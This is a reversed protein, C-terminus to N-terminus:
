FWKSKLNKACKKAIGESDFPEKFHSVLSTVSTWSIDESKDISTYSHDQSTFTIISM